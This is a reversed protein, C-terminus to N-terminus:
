EARQRISEMERYVPEAWRSAAERAEVSASRNKATTDSEFELQPTKANYRATARMQELDGPSLDMGFHGAALRPVAEPLGSYNVFLGRGGEANDVASRCIRGLVRACYEEDRMRGAERDGAEDPLLGPISGPVMHAGRQNMQSVIIEVPNRYLFIWPVDPFARRILGLSLTSWSDFKVFLSREAPHRKQGFANIMWRLWLIRREEDVPRGDLNARLISDIPPPESIVITGALSALMQAALTSGCRSAHFIFGAPRIGPSGDYMKGLLEVPTKHRFLLNFPRRFCVKITDEFFPRTFRETGIHCWEVFHEGDEKYFRIPVWNRLDEIDITM